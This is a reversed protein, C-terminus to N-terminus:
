PSFLLLLSAARGRRRRWTVSVSALWLSHACVTPVPHDNQRVQMGSKNRYEWTCTGNKAASERPGNCVVKKVQYACSPLVNRSRNERLDELCKLAVDRQCHIHQKKGSDGGVCIYYEPVLGGGTKFCNSSAALVARQSSSGPTSPTDGERDPMDKFSLENPPTKPNWGTGKQYPNYGNVGSDDALSPLTLFFFALLTSFLRRM